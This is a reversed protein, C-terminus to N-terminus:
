IYVDYFLKISIIILVLSFIKQLTNSNIKTSIKSGISGGILSGIVLIFGIFYNPYGYIVYIILGAFSTFLLAFQSTAAANNMNFKYLMILSPVFIIGGGIGFCSSLIGALFALFVLICLKLYYKRKKNNVIHTPQLNENIKSKLKVILYLSTFILVFAFYFKFDSISILNSIVVGFFTGPISSISLILGMKNSILKKHYYFITSSLSTSFVSMLSTSSIQSPSYNLYSLFPSIIIGGGIGVLSGIIGAILSIVLSMLAEVLM